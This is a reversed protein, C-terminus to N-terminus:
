LSKVDPTNSKAHLAARRRFYSEAEPLEDALSAKPLGRLGRLWTVTAESCAAKLIEQGYQKEVDEPRIRKHAMMYAMVKAATDPDQAFGDQLAKPLDLHLAQLAVAHETGMADMLTNIGFGDMIEKPSALVKDGFTKAMLYAAGRAMSPERIFEPKEGTGVLRMFPIAALAVYQDDPMMENRSTAMCGVKRMEKSMTGSLSQILGTDTRTGLFANISFLKAEVPTNEGSIHHGRMQRRLPSHGKLEYITDIDQSLVYGDFIKPVDHQLQREMAQLKALKKDGAAVGEVIRGIHSM